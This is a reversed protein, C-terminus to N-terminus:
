TAKLLLVGALILGVGGLRAPTLAEGFLAAGALLTGAAGLGTWVAYATGLPLVVLVKGLLWVFGGLCALSVLSWGPRTYGAALKMTLAWAVDLAGALLLAAWALGQSV